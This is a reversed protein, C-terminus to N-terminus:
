ADLQRQLFAPALGPKKKSLFGSFVQTSGLNKTEALDPRNERDGPSGM